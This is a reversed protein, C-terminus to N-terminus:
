ESVTDKYSCIFDQYKTAADPYRISDTISNLKFGSTVAFDWAAPPGTPWLSFYIDAARRDSPDSDLDRM